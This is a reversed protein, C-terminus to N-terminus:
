HRPKLSPTKNYFEIKSTLLQFTEWQISATGSQGVGEEGWWICVEGDLIASHHRLSVPLSCTHVCAFSFLVAVHKLASCESRIYVHNEQHSLPWSDVQWHLLNPGLGQTMFIGQLLFHCGVGTNKGPFDWTCLLRTCWLGHSRLSDSM